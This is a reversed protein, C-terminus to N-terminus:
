GTGCAGRKCLPAFLDRTTPVALRPDGRERVFASISVLHGLLGGRGAFHDVYWWTYQLYAGLACRSSHPASHYVSLGQSLLGLRGMHGNNPYM